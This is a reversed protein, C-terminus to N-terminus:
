ADGHMLLYCTLDATRYYRYNIKTCDNKEPGGM